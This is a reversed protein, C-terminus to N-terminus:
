IESIARCHAVLADIFPAIPCVAVIRRREGWGSQIGVLKVVVDDTKQVYIGLVAGGSMGQINQVPAPEDGSDDLQGFVSALSKREEWDDPRQPLPKVRLSFHFQHIRGGNRKITEEPVGTIFWNDAEMALGIDHTCFAKTGVQRMAAVALDEVEVICYDFGLEDDRVAFRPRDMVRFPYGFRKDQNVKNSADNISWNTCQGGRTLIAEIHDINHAATCLYWTKNLDLLFGSYSRIYSEGNYHEVFGFNILYPWLVDNIEGNNIM